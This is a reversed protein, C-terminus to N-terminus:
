LKSLAPKWKFDNKIKMLKEQMLFDNQDYDGYSFPDLVWDPVEMTLLDQFKIIM